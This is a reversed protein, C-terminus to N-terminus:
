SRTPCFQSSRSYLRGGGCHPQLCRRTRHPLNSQYQGHVLRLSPRERQMDRDDSRSIKASDVSDGHGLEAVADDDMIAALRLAFTMEEATCGSKAVCDMWRQRTTM